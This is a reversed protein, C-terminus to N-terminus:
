VHRTGRPSDCSRQECLPLPDSIKHPLDPNNCRRLRALGMRIGSATGYHRIAQKTYESCGPEFNCDVAFLRIGGGRNQYWDILRIALRQLM